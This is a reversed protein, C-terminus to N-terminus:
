VLDNIVKTVVGWIILDYDDRIEIDNYLENESILIVKSMNKVLRKVTLQGNIAAIVIMGSKVIISRDVVLLAGNNIGANKMSEGKARIFFTSAPNKILYQKIDLDCEKYDDAPSPFGAEVLCTYLAIKDSSTHDSVNGTNFLYEFLNTM